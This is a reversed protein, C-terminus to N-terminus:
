KLIGKEKLYKQAGPHFRVAIGDTATELKISKGAAHGQAITAREEYLVKTMQYVLDEPVDNRVLLGSYIAITKVPDTQRQYSNAPIEL